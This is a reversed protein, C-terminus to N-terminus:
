ISTPTPVNKNVRVEDFNRGVGAGCGQKWFETICRYLRSIRRGVTQKVSNLNVKPYEREGSIDLLIVDHM